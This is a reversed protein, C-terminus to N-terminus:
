SMRIRPGASVVAWVERYWNPYNPNWTASYEWDSHRLSNKKFAMTYRVDVLWTRHEVLMAEFINVFVLYMGDSQETLM